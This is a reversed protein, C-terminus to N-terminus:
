PNGGSSKGYVIRELHRIKERLANHNELKEELKELRHTIAAVHLAMVRREGEFQTEVEKFRERATTLDEQAGPHAALNSHDRLKANTQDELKGLERQLFGLQITVPKVSNSIMGICVVIIAIFATVVVGIKIGNSTKINNTVM